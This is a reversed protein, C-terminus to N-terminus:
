DRWPVEIRVRTGQGENGTVACTGGIEQARQRMNRLGDAQADPPLSPLGRGNDEVTVRLATDTLVAGIRVETAGGHKAVNHLAEKVILFLNHRVDAPVVRPPPHDPFDVRCRVGAARLFDVAYQGAYDLLHALTDNRPNVAWVIEDLSKSVQRATSSIQGTHEAVRDPERADQRALESLLSIQTLSAGLDDHIDKAIRTREQHLAAQQQLVEVRARLRRFSARRVLAGVAGAFAAVALARFWWTQWVFPQVVFSLAAGTENWVGANNCAVVRFRYRGAPLRPYGASRATGSEVWGEDFGELQHRFRVNEPAAFSLATYDFEAKRHGPALELVPVGSRPAPRAGAEPWSEAGGPLAVAVGDVAVRELYVPPPLRNPPLRAPSVAALGSRTSFWVRGDRSRLAAPAHGVNAQLVPVAEDRGFAIAQVRAARGDAVADLERQTV